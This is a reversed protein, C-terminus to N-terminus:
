GACCIASFDKAKLSAGGVLAGDINDMAFLSAANEANVSGGYLIRVAGALESDLATLEKRIHSHVEEAQEPTATDGTGIAWIPEYALVLPELAVGELGKELQGSIVALTEGADRQEKSEGVCLIPTLGKSQAALVKDRCLQDTEGFLSRRESHGVIVFQAGIDRLMGASVEGTYAGSERWDINQAGTLVDTGALLELVQAIYVAPPCIVREAQSPLDLLERILEANAQLSGNMKWNAAILRQKM